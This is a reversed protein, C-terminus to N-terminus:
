LVKDVLENVIRLYQTELAISINDTHSKNIPFLIIYYIIYGFKSIM